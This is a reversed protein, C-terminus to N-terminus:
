LTEHSDREQIVSLIEKAISQAKGNQPAIHDVYENGPYSAIVYHDQKRVEYRPPESVNAQSVLRTEDIKGDFGLCKVYRVEELQLKAQKQRWFIRQRRLKAPDIIYNPSDLQLDKLCANIVKCADRNSIGIREMMECLKPYIFRNRRTCEEENESGSKSNDSSSYCTEKQEGESNEDQDGDFNMSQERRLGRQSDDAKVKKYYEYRQEERKRRKQLKGTEVKDIPGICM